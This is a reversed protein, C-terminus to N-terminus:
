PSSTRRKRYDLFEARSRLYDNEDYAADCLVMLVAGTGRYTQEAWLSPPVHLGQAPTDLKFVRSDEGDDISVDVAGALCVMLQNLAQHDHGGRRGGDEVGSIAFVRAIPFPVHHGVEAVMLAGRDDVVTQLDVMKVDKVRHLM